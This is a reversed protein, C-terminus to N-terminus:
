VTGGEQKEEALLSGTMMLGIEEKKATRADVTGMVKGGAIVLIGGVTAMRHFRFRGSLLVALMGVIMVSTVGILLWQQGEFMSWAAGFNETYTLSFIGPILTLPDSNELFMVALWKTLQDVAVLGATILLIGLQMM